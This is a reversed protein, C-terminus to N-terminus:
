HFKSQTQTPTIHHMTQKLVLKVTIEYCDTQANYTANSIDVLDGYFGIDEGYFSWATGDFNNIILTEDTLKSEAPNNDNSENGDSKLVLKM